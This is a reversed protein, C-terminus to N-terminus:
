LINKKLIILQHDPFISPRGNYKNFLIKRFILLLKLFFSGSDHIKSAYTDISKIFKFGHLKKFFFPSPFCIHEPYNYYWWKGKLSKASQCNPNGTLIIIIGNKNLLKYVSEFFATPYYLHEVVDFATIIDFKENITNAERYAIHGKKELMICSEECLELGYTKAGFIKVYDLFEGSNCGIDLVKATKSHFLEDILNIVKETKDHKFETGSWRKTGEGTAYLNEADTPHISNQVFKSFCKNCQFLEPNKTIKIDHTSLMVNKGYNLNGVKLIDISSCFPCNLFRYDNNIIQM